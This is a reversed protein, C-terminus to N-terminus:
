TVKHFKAQVRVGFDEHPVGWSYRYEITGDRMLDLVIEQRFSHRQAPEGMRFVFRRVRFDDSRDETLVHCLVGPTNTSVTWLCLKDTKLDPTIWTLEEHFASEDDTARFKLEILSGSVRPALEFRGEFAHGELNTGRGQYNGQHAALLELAPALSEPGSM